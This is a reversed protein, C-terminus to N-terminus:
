ISARMKRVLDYSATRNTIEKTSLTLTHCGNSKAKIEMGHTLLLAQMSRVDALDPANALALPEDTLLGAALIPLVANKAGGISISGNLPKGGQIRIKDM